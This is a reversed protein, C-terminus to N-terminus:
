HEFSEVCLLFGVTLTCVFLLMKLFELQSLPYFGAVRFDFICLKIQETVFVVNKKNQM